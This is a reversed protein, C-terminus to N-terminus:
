ASRRATRITLAIEMDVKTPPRRIGAFPASPFRVHADGGRGFQRPAEAKRTCRSTRAPKTANPTTAAPVGPGFLKISMVEPTFNPKARSANFCRTLASASWGGGDAFLRP